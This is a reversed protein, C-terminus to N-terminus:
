ITYLREDLTDIADFFIKMCAERDTDLLVIHNGEGESFLTQGQTDEGDLVIDIRGKKSVFLDPKLLYLTPILDFISTRDWGRDIAYRCYFDLLDSVLQSAKGKNRFRKTESILIGGAYCVELPAMVVKVGSDCVIKAAEPDHWINFEAFKNINGGNLAGGMLVIEDIKKGLEPADKLLYGLNTLPALAVITIHDEKQLIEKYYEVASLDEVKRSSEKLVPGDMGSEGHAAPQPKPEKVMPRECGRYVPIDIGLYDEVKLINNTVKDVSNNGAVTAFSLLELEKDHALATMISLIDDHGPDTDVIIKRM